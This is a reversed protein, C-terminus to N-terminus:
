IQFEQRKLPVDIPVHILGRAVLALWDSWSLANLEDQSNRDQATAYAKWATQSMPARKVYDLLSVNNFLIPDKIDKDLIARFSINRQCLIAYVTNFFQIAEENLQESPKIEIIELTGDRYCVLFDPTYCHQEGNFSFHIKVPQELYATISTDIELFPVFFTENVGETDIQRGMTTSAFRGTIVTKSRSRTDRLPLGYVNPEPAITAAEASGDVDTGSTGPGVMRHWPIGIGQVLGDVYLSQQRYRRPM